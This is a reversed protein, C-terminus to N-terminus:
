LPPRPSGPRPPAGATGSAASAGILAAAEPSTGRSKAISMLLDRMARVAQSVSRDRETVVCFATSTSLHESGPVQVFPRRTRTGTVYHDPLFGVCRGTNILTAVAELGSAQTQWAAAVARSRLGAGERVFRRVVMGYGRTVLRKLHPPAEDPQPCCYLRAHEVFLPQSDFGPESMEISNVGLHVERDRIAATLQDPPYIAVSVSVAPAIRFFLEIADSIYANANTLCNDVVAIRVEGEYTRHAQSIANRAQDVSDEIAAAARYVHRGYETLSFGKPGRLCLVGDLRAELARLARSTASLELGFRDVAATLGGADAVQRFVRMNRLDLENLRGIQLRSSPLFSLSSGSM